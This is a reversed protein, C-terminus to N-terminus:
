QAQKILGQLMAQSAAGPVFFAKMADKLPNAAVVFAPTGGLGLKKALDLNAELEKKIAPDKMDKQLQETDLGVKKAIRLVSDKNLKNKEAMLANHLAHYKGQKNAALAAAAAYQSNPGFIPFEKYVVRLDSNTKILGGIVGVMQKCHICQYDFFEVLNVKGQKNGAVPSQNNFLQKANAQIAQRANQVMNQQQKQQLARSAEVLVEPNTVIYEHVIKQIATKQKPNFQNDQAANVVAINFILSAGLLLTTLTKVLKM